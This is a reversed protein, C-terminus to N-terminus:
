VPKDVYGSERFSVYRNDGIIIHDVLPIGILNGTEIIRKTLIIDDKSPTPDGSPHNHLLLISVAKHKLANYFIERPAALSANFSGNSLELDDQVANKGDLILLRVQETELFRMSLYARAVIAPNDCLLIEEGDLSRMMRKTIETLCRLQIAKVRGIGELEQLQEQSMQFLGGIRKGPIHQLVKQALETSRLGGCGTRIIVALLEADSLVQPGYMVCKEYPRESAPLEKMTQITKGM